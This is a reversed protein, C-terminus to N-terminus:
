GRRHRSRRHRRRRAKVTVPSTTTSTTGDTRYLTWAALYHGGPLAPVEARADLSSPNPRVPMTRITKSDRERVLALTLSAAGDGNLDAFAVFPRAPVTAGAGPLVDVIDTPGPPPSDSKRVFGGQVPGSAGPSFGPPPPAGPTPCTTPPKSLFGAYVIYGGGEAPDTHQM